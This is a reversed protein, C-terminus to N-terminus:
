HFMRLIPRLDPKITLIEGAYKLDKLIKMRLWYRANKESDRVLIRLNYLSLDNVMVKLSEMGMGGTAGTLFVNPKSM